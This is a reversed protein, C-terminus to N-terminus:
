KHTRRESEIHVGVERRWQSGLFALTIRNLYARKRQDGTNETLLSIVPVVRGGLRYM